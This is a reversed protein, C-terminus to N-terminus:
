RPTKVLKKRRKADLGPTARMDTDVQGQELDHHAQRMDARVQDGAAEPIQDREHPLQGMVDAGSSRAAEKGAKKGAKRKPDTPSKSPLDTAPDAATKM